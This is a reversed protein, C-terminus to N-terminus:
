DAFKYGVGGESIIMTPNDPDEELKERLKNIYVELFKTDTGHEPFVEELLMENSLVKGANTVLMYLLDYERPGLKLLKGSVSVKQSNFDITLRGRVSPKDAVEAATKTMPSRRLLAQLRAVLEGPSFPKVMNDDAGEELGRIKDEEGGRVTLIIVPVDSFSRIQRLVQFGDIDPLGLDLIVIGPLEKKVLEVGEKGLFTSILQVEPWRIKMIQAVIEIIEPNDEVMLVKM